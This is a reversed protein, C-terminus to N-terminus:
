DLRSIFFLSDKSKHINSVMEEYHFMETEISSNDIVFFSEQYLSSSNVQSPTPTALQLIPEKDTNNQHSDEEESSSEPSESLRSEM